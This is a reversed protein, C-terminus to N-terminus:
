GRWVRTIGASFMGGITISSVLAAGEQLTPTFGAHGTVWYSIINDYCIAKGWYLSVAYALLAQPSLPHGLWATAATAQASAIGVSAQVTAITVDKSKNYAALGATLLSSLLGGLGWM